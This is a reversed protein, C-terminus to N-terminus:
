CSAVQGTHGGGISQGSNITVRQARQGAYVYCRMREWVKAPYTPRPSRVEVMTCDCDVFMKYLASIQDAAADLDGTVALGKAMQLAQDRTIGQRIDVPVKIIKEPAKEALDEISTGGESCGIMVPGSTSRDLLVAFYMERALQMKRAVYLTTVPKGADAYSVLAPLRLCRRWTCMAISKFCVQALVTQFCIACCLNECSNSSAACAM